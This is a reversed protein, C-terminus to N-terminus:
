QVSRAAEAENGLRRLAGAGERSQVDIEVVCEVPVYDLTLPGVLQVKGSPNAFDIVSKERDIKFGLETGGRTGTFKVLVFGRAVAAEFEDGSKYRAASVAHTGSSLRDVLDSM